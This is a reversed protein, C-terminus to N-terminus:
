CGGRSRLARLADGFSRSRPPAAEHDYGVRRLELTGDDAVLAYAARHDGDLPLGVCGPNVLEVGM